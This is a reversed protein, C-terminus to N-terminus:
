KCIQYWNNIRKFFFKYNKIRGIIEMNSKCFLYGRMKVYKIGVYHIRVVHFGLDSIDNTYSKNKYLKINM